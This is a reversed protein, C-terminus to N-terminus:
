VLQTLLKESRRGDFLTTWTKPVDRFDTPVVIIRETARIKHGQYGEVLANTIETWRGAPIADTVVFGEIQFRMAIVHSWNKIEVSTSNNYDAIAGCAAVRGISQLLTLM